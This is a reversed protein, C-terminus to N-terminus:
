QFLPSLPCTPYPTPILVAWVGDSRMAYNWPKTRYALTVSAQAMPAGLVNTQQSISQTPFLLYGPAFTTASITVTDSNVFGMMYNSAALWQDFSPIQYRTVNFDQRGIIVGVDQELKEGTGFAFAVGPLTAFETSGKAEIQIWPTSGDGVAFPFSGFEVTVMAKTFPTAIGITTLKADVTAARHTVRQAYMKNNWPYILPIQQTISAGAGVGYEVPYGAIQQLFSELDSFYCLFNLTATRKGITWEGSSAGTGDPNNLLLIPYQSQIQSLLM